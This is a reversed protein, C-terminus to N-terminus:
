RLAVLPSEATDTDSSSRRVASQLEADTIRRISFRYGAYVAIGYFLLDLPHFAAILAGPIIAPHGGVHALVALPGVGEEQSAVVMCISLLNGLLCGFVSLTVGLHGFSKDIGRGLTRVAGAVLLGVGVAMWGIQYNTAATVLAWAIAGVVAAALGGVLALLFNEKARLEAILLEIKVPDAPEPSQPAATEAPAPMEEPPRPPGIINRLGPLSDRPDTVAGRSRSATAAPPPEQTKVPRDLVLRARRPGPDPPSERSLEPTDNRGLGLSRRRPQAPPQIEDAGIAPLSRDQPTQKPRPEHRVEQTEAGHTALSRRAPRAPAPPEAENERSETESLRKRRPTSGAPPAQPQPPELDIDTLPKQMTMRRARPAHDDYKPDM